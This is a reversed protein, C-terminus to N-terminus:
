WELVLIWITAGSVFSVIEVLLPPPPFQPTLKPFPVMSCTELYILSLLFSFLPADLYWLNSIQKHIYTFNDWFQKKNKILILFLKWPVTCYMLRKMFVSSIKREEEGIRRFNNHYVKLCISSSKSRSGKNQAIKQRKTM